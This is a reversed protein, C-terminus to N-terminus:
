AGATRGRRRTGPGPLATLANQEAPGSLYKLRRARQHVHDPTGTQFGSASLTEIWTGRDRTFNVQYREFQAADNTLLWVRAADGTIDVDVVTCFQPPIDGVARRALATREEDDRENSVAGITGALTARKRRHLL